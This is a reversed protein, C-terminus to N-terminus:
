LKMIESKKLALWNIVQLLLAVQILINLYVLSLLKNNDM